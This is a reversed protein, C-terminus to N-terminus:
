QQFEYGFIANFGTGDVGSGLVRYYKDTINELSLSIRHQNTAGFTTGTRMNLTAFGPTAFEGNVYFRSDSNSAPNNRDQRNVMWTFVEFYSLRLDDRWRLGLVGQTPPIRTYPQSTTDDRGFTYAFNGFTSWNPDLLYEGSLETGNLYAQHNGLIVNGMVVDRTIYDDIQMWWEYIQLRLKDGNYKAGIEYTYSHEPQLNLALLQPQQNANQQFTNNATLDDITPARYGEYVGGVLNVEETLKYTLGLSGVWDQYTRSYFVDQQVNMPFTFRPTGQQDSNEYRVGAVANLRETLFVDWNLYCGVRDAISDDPYQPGAAQQAPPLPLGTQVSFRQRTADIDEYYYDAGYTFIGLGENSLDKSLAVQFGVMDNDFEGEQRRTYDDLPVSFNTFERSGEKTRQYSFTTSFTDFLPNINYALGQWRIYALDRQQPDFFTPRPTNGPRNYVFPAFRDSRPLNQQEFHSLAFTLVQDDNVMLNYKIDGAYQDYNTFPQHGRGGGIDVDHVDMYSAGAFLGGGGVWGEINARSYPAGDATSFFQRFSGATYDARYPDASRTVINVTGGIADSGYLVSGSGRLIEIREVQGPDFTNFYQNPGSRLVSNNVRIGDVLILLQQGTVGRIFPSAQGRGTQQMLVGPEFQLARFMDGAQKERITERDIITGFNSQEFLSKEGRIVNNLGGIDLPSDGGFFQDALSPFAPNGFTPEAESPESFPQVPTPQGVVDTDPLTQPQATTPQTNSTTEQAGLLAPVAALAVAAALWRPFYFM